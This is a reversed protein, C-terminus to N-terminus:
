RAWRRAVVWAGMAVLGGGFMWELSSSHALAHTAILAGAAILLLGSCVGANM